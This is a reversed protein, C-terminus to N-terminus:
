ATPWWGGGLGGVGPAAVNSLNSHHSWTGGDRIVVGLSDEEMMEKLDAGTESKAGRNVGQACGWKEGRDARHPM